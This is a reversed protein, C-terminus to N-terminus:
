TSTVSRPFEEGNRYLETAYLCGAMHQVLRLADLGVIGELAGTLRSVCVQCENLHRLVEERSPRFHFPKDASNQM